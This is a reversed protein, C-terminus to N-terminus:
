IRGAEALVDAVQQPVEVSQKGMIWFGYGNIQVFTDVPVRIRVKPQAALAAKIRQFKSEHAKKEAGALVPAPSPITTGAPSPDTDLPALPDKPM